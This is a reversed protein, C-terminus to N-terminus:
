KKIKQAKKRERAETKQARAAKKRKERSENYLDDLRDVLTLLRKLNVPPISISPEPQASSPTSSLASSPASNEDSETCAAFLLHLGDPEPPLSRGIAERRYDFVIFLKQTSFRYEFVFETKAWNRKRFPLSIHSGAGLGAERGVRGEPRSGERRSGEPHEAGGM